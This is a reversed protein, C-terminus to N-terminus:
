FQIASGVQQNKAIWKEVVGAKKAMRLIASQLALGISTYKEIEQLKGQVMSQRYDMGLHANTHRAKSPDM